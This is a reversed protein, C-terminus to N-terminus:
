IPDSQDGYAAARLKLSLSLSIGISQTVTSPLHATGRTLEPSQARRETDCIIPRGSPNGRLNDRQQRM